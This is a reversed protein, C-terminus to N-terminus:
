SFHRPSHLSVFINSIDVRGKGKNRVTNAKNDDDDFPNVKGSRIASRGRSRSTKTDKKDSKIRSSRRRRPEQLERLEKEYRARSRPSSSERRRGPWETRRYQERPEADSEADLSSSRSRSYDKPGNEEEFPFPRAALEEDRSQSASAESPEKKWEVSDRAKVLRTRKLPTGLEPAPSSPPVWGAKRAAKDSTYQIKPKENPDNKPTIDDQEVPAHRSLPHPPPVWGAKRAAESSTYQIKPQENPDNKPTIDDYEVPTPRSNVLNQNLGSSLTLLGLDSTPPPIGTAKITPPIITNDDIKGDNNLVNQSSSAEAESETPRYTQGLKEV